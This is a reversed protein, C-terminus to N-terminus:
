PSPEDGTRALGMARETTLVDLGDDKSPEVADDGGEGGGHTGTDDGGGAGGQNPQGTVNARGPGSAGQFDDTPPIELEDGSQFLTIEFNEDEGKIGSALDKVRQKLSAM